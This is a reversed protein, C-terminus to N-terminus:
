DEIEDSFRPDDDEIVEMTEADIMKQLQKITDEEVYAIGLEDCQKQLEQKRTLKPTPTSTADIKSEVSDLKEELRSILDAQKEIISMLKDSSDSVKVDVEGKSIRKNLAMKSAQSSNRAIEEQVSKPLKTIPIFNGNEDLYRKGAGAKGTYDMNNSGGNCYNM